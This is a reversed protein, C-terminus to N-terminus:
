TGHGVIKLAAEDVNFLRAPGAVALKTKLKGAVSFWHCGPDKMVVTVKTGTIHSTKGLAKGAGVSLLVVISISLALKKMTTDERRQTGTHSAAHQRGGFPSAEPTKLLRAAYNEASCGVPRHRKSGQLDSTFVRSSIMMPPPGAPYVAARYAARASRSGSTM